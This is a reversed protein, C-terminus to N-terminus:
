WAFDLHHHHPSYETQSSAIWELELAIDHASQWRQDPDKNLCTRVLRDLAQPVTLSATPTFGIIEADVM